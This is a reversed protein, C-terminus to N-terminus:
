QAGDRPVPAHPIALFSTATTRRLQPPIDSERAAEDIVSIDTPSATEDRSFARAVQM